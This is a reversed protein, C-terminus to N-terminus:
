RPPYASSPTFYSPQEPGGLKPATPQFGTGFGPPMGSMRSSPYLANVSSPAFTPMPPPPVVSRFLPQHGPM